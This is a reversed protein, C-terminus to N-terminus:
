SYLFICKSIFSNGTDFGISYNGYGPKTIEIAYKLNWCCNNIIQYVSIIIILINIGSFYLSINSM